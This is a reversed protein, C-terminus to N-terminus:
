YRRRRHVLFDSGDPFNNHMHTTGSAAPQSTDKDVGVHAEYLKRLQKARSAYEASRSKHDVVDAQITSDNTKAYDSSLTECAEAAVLNALADLDSARVTTEDIHRTTFTVRMSDGLPLSMRMLRLVQGTPSKYVTFDDQSTLFAANQLGVPYEIDKLESFDAEWGSPPAYDHGGDGNIDAVVERPRDKSYRALALAAAQEWDPAALRSSDKTRLQALATLNSGGTEINIPM